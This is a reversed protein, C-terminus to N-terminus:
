SYLDNYSKLQKQISAKLRKSTHPLLQKGTMQFPNQICVIYDNYLHQIIDKVNVEATAIDCILITKIQTNSCWAFM